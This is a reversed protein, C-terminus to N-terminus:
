VEILVAASRPQVEIIRKSTRATPDEPSVIMWRVKREINIRVQISKPTHNVLVIAKNGCGLHRFVSYTIKGNDSTVQAGVTDQFEADWLFERYKRRLADVKKGYELTLPFESLRGKFDRPEYSIIYRYLLCTNITERDDYGTVANMIPLFPDIYRMSPIHGWMTRTYSLMYYRNQLDYPAEGALVLEPTDKKLLKGIEDAFLSDGNFNYAPIHHGHDSDYCYLGDGHSACEDLLIGEPDLDLSKRIQSLAINRYPRCEMCMWALPRTNIGSLHAPTDYRYGPFQHTNGFIDKSAFKHLERKYWGTGIDNWTYKQYLIVKVGMAQVKAIAKKLDQWGGLRPDTAVIPVRGDQGDLTWGTLQIAKVGNKVCEEGYSVLASYPFRLTDGLSNEQIQQWSHVDQIWKPSRPKKIWTKRWKKYCDAGSHWDGRFPNLVIPSLERTERPNIFPFHTAGFELYTPQRGIELTRPVYDPTTYGPKLQFTFAVLEWARTAHWGAYLGESDDLILVFPSEPTNVLQTPYPVGWYGLENAFTPYLTSLELHDYISNARQLTGSRPRKMDGIIPYVASELVYASQNSIYMSFTLGDDGLAVRTIVEINLVGGHESRVQNWMFEIKSGDTRRVIPPEQKTGEVRNLIRHQLPIVFQFSRSLEIRGQFNTGTNKNMLGVLSGTEPDFEAKVLDNELCLSNL